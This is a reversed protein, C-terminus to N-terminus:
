NWLLNFAWFNASKPDNYTLKGQKNRIKSARAIYRKRRDEDNHTTYDQYLKHGFHIEKGKYKVVYKKNKRKSIMLDDAGFKIAKEKLVAFM